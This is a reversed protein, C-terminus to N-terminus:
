HGPYNLATAGREQMSDLGNGMQRMARAQIAM